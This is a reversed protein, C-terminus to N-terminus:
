DNDINAARHIKMTGGNSQLKLPREAKSFSLAFHHNCFLSVTSQIDLLIVKCLDMDKLSHQSLMTEIHLFQFHSQGNTSDFSYDDVGELAAQLQACAKKIQTLSRKSKSSAASANNDSSDNLCFHAPHGLKNCKFCKINAYPDKKEQKGDAEKKKDLDAGGKGKKRSKGKQAFAAGESGALTPHGRSYHNLFMLAMSRTEPYQNNGTTMRSGMNSRTWRENSNQIFLYALLHEEVNAKVLAQDEASLSMFSAEANDNLLGTCYEWLVKINNFQMGVSKAVEYKANFHEYWQANMLNGQKVILLPIAQEIVAAFSYQDDTQKLVLYLQFPDYSKSVTSWQADQKMKDQLLQTCQGLILGFIKEWHTKLHNIHDMYTKIEM